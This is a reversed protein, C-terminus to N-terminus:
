QNMLDVNHESSVTKNSRKAVPTHLLFSRHLLLFLLLLAEEEAQPLNHLVERYFLGKKATQVYWSADILLFVETWGPESPVLCFCFEPASKFRKLSQLVKTFTQSAASSSESSSGPPCGPFNFAIPRWLEHTADWM